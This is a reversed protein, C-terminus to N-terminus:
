LTKFYYLGTEMYLIIVAVIFIGIIVIDWIKKSPRRTYSLLFIFPIALAFYYNFGFGFFLSMPFIYFILLDIASYVLLVISAITSIELSSRNSKAYEDYEEETGGWKIFLHKRLKIVFALTFFIAYIIISRCPLISLFIVPIDIKDLYYLAYLISATIAFLVPLLCLSRFLIRTGKRKIKKPEYFLFFYFLAFLALDVFVNYNIIKGFVLKTFATATIYAQTPDDQIIVNMAGLVYRYFLFGVVLFIGIAIISYNLLTSKIRKPNTMIVCFNSTLFMPLAFLSIIQLAEQLGLVFPSYNVHRGIINMCLYVQAFFMFVFGIIRITRYSFIGRFKVRKKSLLKDIKQRQKLAKEPQVFDEKEIETIEELKENENAVEGTEIINQSDSNFRDTKIIKQTEM